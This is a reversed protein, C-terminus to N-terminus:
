VWPPLDRGRRAWWRTVKLREWSSVQSHVHTHQELSVAHGFTKGCIDCAFPRTGSHSRRVHVELGHPTSFVQSPASCLTLGRSPPLGTTRRAVPGAGSCPPCPLSSCQRDQQEEATEWPTGKGRPPLKRDIFHLSYSPGLPGETGVHWEHGDSVKNCKVCHYTDMGPSYRLSFDLPSETSPVLPSGYLRVSRELFASQMTSPTQQYSHSYSSALTDWSFSPKYFPPSESVPSEGDQPQSTM